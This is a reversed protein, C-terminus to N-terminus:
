SIKHYKERLIRVLEEKSIPCRIVDVFESKEIGIEHAMCKILFDSIERQGHSVKTYIGVAKDNVFLHYYKHHTDIRKFGKKKLASEVERPKFVVM